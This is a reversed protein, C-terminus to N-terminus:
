FLGRIVRIQVSKNDRASIASVASIKFFFWSFRKRRNSVEDKSSHRYSKGQSCAGLYFGEAMDGIGAPNLCSSLFVNFVAVHPM